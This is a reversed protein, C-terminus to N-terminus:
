GLGLFPMVLEFATTAWKRALPHTLVLGMIRILTRRSHWVWLWMRLLTATCCNVRRTMGAHPRTNVVSTRLWSTRIISLRWLTDRVRCQTCIAEAGSPALSECGCVLELRRSSVSRETYNNIQHM